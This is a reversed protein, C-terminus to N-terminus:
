APADQHTLTNDEADCNEGGLGLKFGITNLGKGFFEHGLRRGGEVYRLLRM